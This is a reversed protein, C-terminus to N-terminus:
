ILWRHNPHVKQELQVFPKGLQDNISSWYTVHTSARWLAPSHFGAIFDPLYNPPLWDARTAVTLPTNRPVRPSTFPQKGDEVASAHAQYRSNPMKSVNQTDTWDLDHGETPSFPFSVISYLAIKVYILPGRSWSSNTFSLIWLPM